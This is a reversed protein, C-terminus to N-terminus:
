FYFIKKFELCLSSTMLQKKNDFILVRKNDDLKIKRESLKKKSGLELEKWKLFEKLFDKEYLHKITTVHEQSLTRFFIFM